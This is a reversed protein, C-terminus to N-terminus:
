INDSFALRKRLVTLFIMMILCISPIFNNFNVIVNTSSFADIYKDGFFKFLIRFSGASIVSCAIRNLVFPVISFRNKVITYVQLIICIGGFSCCATILPLLNYPLGNLSTLNSIELVSFLLTRTEDHSVFNFVGMESIITIVSQFFLIMMCIRFLNKGAAEISESLMSSNFEAKNNSEIGKIYFIRNYFLAFITNGIIISAFILMGINASNFVALGVAGCFFAPGGNYSYSLLHSASEKSILKKDYMNAILSAGIPYGALNSIVFIFILQEPIKLIYALPKFLKSVYAYLGSRILLDSFVMFAFLSPIIVNLCKGIAQRQGELVSESHIILMIAYGCLTIVTFLHRLKTKM